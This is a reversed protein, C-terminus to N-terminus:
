LGLFIFRIDDFLWIRSIISFESGCILFLYYRRRGGIVRFLRFESLFGGM